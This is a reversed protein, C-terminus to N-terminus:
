KKDVDFILDEVLKGDKADRFQFIFRGGSIAPADDQKVEVVMTNGSKRIHCPMFELNRVDEVGFSQAAELSRQAALQSARRAAEGIPSRYVLKDNIWVRNAFQCFYKMDTEHRVVITVDQDRPAEFRTAAVVKAGRQLMGILRIGRYEIYTWTSAGARLQLPAADFIVPKWGKPPANTKFVFGYENVDETFKGLAETLGTDEGATQKQTLDVDELRVDVKDRRFWWWRSRAQLVVATEGELPAGKSLAVRYPMNCAWDDWGLYGKIIRVPKKDPFAQRPFQYSVKALERAALSVSRSSESMKIGPPPPLNLTLAQPRATANTIRVILEGGVLSDVSQKPAWDAL